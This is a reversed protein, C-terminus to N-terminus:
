LLVRTVGWVWPRGSEMDPIRGDHARYPVPGARKCFKFFGTETYLLSYRIVQHIIDVGRAGVDDTLSYCFYYTCM